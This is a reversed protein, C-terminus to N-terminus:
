LDFDNNCYKWAATSGATSSKKIGTTGNGTPCNKNNIGDEVYCWADSAYGSGCQEASTSECKCDYQENDEIEPKTSFYKVKVSLYTKIM